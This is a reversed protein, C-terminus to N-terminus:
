SARYVPVRDTPNWAAPALAIAWADLVPAPKSAATGGDVARLTSGVPCRYAV